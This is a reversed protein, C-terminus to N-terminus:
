TPNLWAEILIIPIIAPRINFHTDTDKFYVKTGLGKSNDKFNTLFAQTDLFEVKHQQINHKLTIQPTIIIWPQWSNM